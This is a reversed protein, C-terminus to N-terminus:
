PWEHTAHRLGSGSNQWDPVSGRLLLIRALGTMMLGFHALEKRRSAQQRTQRLM